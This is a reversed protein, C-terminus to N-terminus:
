RYELVPDSCIAFRSMNPGVSTWAELMLLEGAPAPILVDNMLHRAWVVMLAISLSLSSDSFYFIQKPLSLSMHFRELFRQCLVLVTRSVISQCGSLPRKPPELPCIYRAWAFRIISDRIILEHLVKASPPLYLFLILSWPGGRFFQTRAFTNSDLVMLCHM